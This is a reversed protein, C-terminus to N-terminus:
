LWYRVTYTSSNHSPTDRVVETNNNFTKRMANCVLPIRNKLGVARQIDNSVLEIYQKGEAHAKELVSYIYNVVKDTYSESSPVYLRNGENIEIQRPESLPAREKLQLKLNRVEEELKAVRDLLELIIRDYNMNNGGRMNMILMFYFHLCSFSQM